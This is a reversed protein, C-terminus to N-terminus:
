SSLEFYFVQRADATDQIWGATGQGVAWTATGLM